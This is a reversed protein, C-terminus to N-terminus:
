TGATTARVAEHVLPPASGDDGIEFCDAFRATLGPDERRLYIRALEEGKEVRRGLRTRYHLAIGEDLESGVVQRAAGAEALLLGLDRNRVRRVVGDRAALVVKEVPALPLDPNEFWDARAGQEVAWRAFQERAAGSALVPRLRSASLDVGLLSGLEGALALTLEVTEPPGGGELIELTEGIEAAHGAWDGLPQNMDTLLAAAGIGLESSIATLLGALERAQELAPLFAAEGVKVDFVIAAAGTALKKSLISAVILPLSDVTATRDRLAYLTSDAPAIGATAIGLAMGCKALLVRARERDLSQQIGPISELKDATGATHGLGRGTLMVVPVGAAALLPALILSSKDGVGGTSHKDALVPFEASLNWREGSELMAATLERTEDHNLGRIAVGMLFAALQGDSWSGTTAGRAVDRLDGDALREGARLRSM